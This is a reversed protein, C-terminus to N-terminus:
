RKVRRKADMLLGANYVFAWESPRPQPTFRVEVEPGAVYSFPAQRMLRRGEAQGPTRGCLKDGCAYSEILGDDSDFLGSLATAEDPPVPTDRPTPPAVELASRAIAAALPAAGGNNTNTLVVVALRDAPFSELIANFGGGNGTHGFVPHGQLTGIRTGLGYEIATGDSLRTPRRMEELHARSIFRGTELANQWRFVDSATSCIAGAAFPLSWSMPAAAVLTGGRVDQGSALGPVTDRATCLSTWYMGLPRFVRERVYEAYPMGTVREIAMGVLYFGTNSYRWSTGPEFDFPQDKVLALVEAHSMERSENAEADPISTFSHIGSTHNLLQRVTVRKGQTPAEAVYKTIDEDLSLRGEEVLKLVVAAEINKSVSAIHFVANPTIPVKRDVDAFGFGRAVSPSVSGIRGVAVAIGAIPRELARAALVGAAVHVDPAPKLPQVVQLSVVIAGFVVRKM